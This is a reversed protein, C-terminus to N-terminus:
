DFEEEGHWEAAKFDEEEVPDGGAFMGHTMRHTPPSPEELAGIFTILVRSDPVDPVPGVIEIEGERYVGEVVTQM